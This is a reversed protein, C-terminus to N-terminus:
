NESFPDPWEGGGGLALDRLLELAEMFEGRHAAAEEPTALRLREAMKPQHADSRLFSEFTRQITEPLEGRAHDRWAFCLPMRSDRLTRTTMMLCPPFAIRHAERERLAGLVEEVLREDGAAEIVESLSQEGEVHAALVSDMRELLQECGWSPIDIGVDPVDSPGIELAPLVASITNRLRAVDLVDIRYVDGLPALRGAHVRGM